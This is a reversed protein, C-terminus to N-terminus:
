GITRRLVDLWNNRCIRAVLKEGYGAQRMAGVLAPLGAVDGIRRGARTVQGLLLLREVDDDSYLRRNTASRGPEVARYRREWARIVDSTLGSRRAAVQIPHQQRTATGSGNM